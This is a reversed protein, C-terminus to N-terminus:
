TFSKRGEMKLETSKQLLIDKITSSICSVSLFTMLSSPSKISPETCPNENQGGFVNLGLLCVVHFVFCKCPIAPTTSLQIIIPQKSDKVVYFYHICFHKSLSEFLTSQQGTKKSLIYFIQIVITAWFNLIKDFRATQPDARTVRESVFCPKVTGLPFCFHVSFPSHLM